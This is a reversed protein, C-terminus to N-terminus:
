EPADGKPILNTRLFDIVLDGRQDRGETHWTVIGADPRSRSERVATVTSSATVTDGATLPRHYTLADVGLFAGGKESLDEVSMGFVTLFVLMPNVVLGDHGSEAAYVANLHRPHYSLTLSSFLLVDSETLTRGWHHDFRQGVGFDEFFRGKPWERARERLQKATTM